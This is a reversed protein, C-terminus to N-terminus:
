ILVTPGEHMIQLNIKSKFTTVLCTPTIQVQACWYQIYHFASFHLGEASNPLFTSINPNFVGKCAYRIAGFKGPVYKEHIPM